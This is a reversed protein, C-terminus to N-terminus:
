DTMADKRLIPPVDKRSANPHRPRFAAAQMAAALAPLAVPKFAPDSREVPPAAEGHQRGERKAMQVTMSLRGSFAPKEFAQGM